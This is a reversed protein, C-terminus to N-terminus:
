ANMIASFVKKNLVNGLDFFSIEENELLELLAKKIELLDSEEVEIFQYGIMASLKYLNDVLEQHLNEEDSLDQIRIVEFTDSSDQGKEFGTYLEKREIDAKLLSIYENAQEKSLQIIEHEALANYMGESYAPKAHPLEILNGEEDVGFEIAVAERMVSLRKELQRIYAVQSETLRTKKWTFFAGRHADIFRSADAQSINKKALAVFEDKSLLVYTNEGVVKRRYINFEEFDVDPCTFMDLLFKLQAETPELTNTVTGKMAILQKILASAKEFNLKNLLEDTITVKVETGLKLIMEKQGDTVPRGLSKLRDIEKSMESSSLNEDPSINHLKCLDTYYKVKKPSIVTNTNTGSFTSSTAFDFNLNTM